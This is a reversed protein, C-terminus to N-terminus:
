QKTKAQQLHHRRILVRGTEVRCPHPLLSPMNMALWGAALQNSELAHAQDEFVSISLMGGDGLDVWQYEIFGPMGAILPVFGEQIKKVTEAPEVVGEYKRVTTHV